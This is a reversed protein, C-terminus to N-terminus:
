RERIFLVWLSKPAPEQVAEASLEALTENLSEGVKGSKCDGNLLSMKELKSIVPTDALLV